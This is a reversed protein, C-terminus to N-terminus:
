ARGQCVAEDYSANSIVEYLHGAATVWYLKQGTHNNLLKCVVTTGSTFNLTIDDAPTFVENTLQLAIFGGTNYWDVYKDFLDNTESNLRNLNGLEGRDIGIFASQQLTVLVQIRGQVGSTMERNLTIGAPTVSGGALNVPGFIPTSIAGPATGFHHNGVAYVLAASAPNMNISSAITTFRDGNTEGSFLSRSAGTANTGWTYTIANGVVTITQSGWGSRNENGVGTPGTVTQFTIANGAVSTVTASLQLMRIFSGPEAPLPLPYDHYYTARSDPNLNSEILAPPAAVCTHPVGPNNNIANVATQSVTDPFTLRVQVLKGNSPDRIQEAIGPHEGNNVASISNLLQGLTTDGNQVYNDLPVRISVDPM